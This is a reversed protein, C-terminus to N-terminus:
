VIKKRLISTEVKVSVQNESLSEWWSDWESCGYEIALSPVTILCLVSQLVPYYTIKNYMQSTQFRTLIDIKRQLYNRVKNVPDRWFMWNRSTKKCSLFLIFLSSQHSHCQDLTTQAMFRFSYGFNLSERKCLKCATLTWFQNLTPFRNFDLQLIHFQHM